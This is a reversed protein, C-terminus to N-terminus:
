DSEPFELTQQPEDGQAMERLTDTWNAGLNLDGSHEVAKKTAFKYKIIEKAATARVTSQEEPNTAMSMLVEVPCGYQKRLRDYLEDFEATRKNKTGLRSAM